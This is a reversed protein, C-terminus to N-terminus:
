VDQPAVCAQPQKHSKPRLLFIPVAALFMLIGMERWLTTISANNDPRIAMVTAIGIMVLLSWSGSLLAQLSGYTARYKEGVRRQVFASFLPQLYGMVFEMLVTGYLLMMLTSANGAVYLGAGALLLAACIALVGWGNALKDSWFRMALAGVVKPGYIVVWLGAMGWSSAHDRYVLPWYHFFPTAFAIVCIATVCWKLDYSGRLLRWSTKALNEDDRGSDSTPLEPNPTRPEPDPPPPEHMLTAAITFSLIGMVGCALWPLRLDRAGIIAGLSGSVLCATFGVSNATGFAAEVDKGQGRANLSSVLWAQDAGCVFAIGVGVVAEVILASWFGNAMFYAFHGLALVGLGIKISLARGCRDAFMGTPVQALLMLTAFVWNIITIQSNDLGISKLFPAYTTAIFMISMDRSAQVLTYTTTPRM